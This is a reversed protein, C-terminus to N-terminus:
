GKRALLTGLEARVMARVADVDVGAKHMAGPVRTAVYEAGVEVALPLSSPTAKDERYSLYAAGAGRAVARLVTSNIHWKSLIRLGYAILPVFVIQGLWSAIEEITM